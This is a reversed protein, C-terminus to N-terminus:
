AAKKEQDKSWAGTAALQPAYAVRTARLPMVGPLWRGEAVRLRLVRQAGAFSQVEPGKGLRRDNMEGLQKQAADNAPDLELIIKIAGIAKILQGEDAYAKCAFQYQNVAKDKQGAKRWTDGLKLRHQMEKPEAKILQEFIEGAKDWKQKKLYDAATDKLERTDVKAAAM